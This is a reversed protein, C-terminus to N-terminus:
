VGLHALVSSGASAPSRLSDFVGSGFAGQPSESTGAGVDIGLGGRRCLDCLDSLDLGSVLYVADGSTKRNLILILTLLLVVAAIHFRRPDDLPSM